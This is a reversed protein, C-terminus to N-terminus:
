RSVSREGAQALLSEFGEENIMENDEHYKLVAGATATALDPTMKQAGLACLAKAWDITEAVGPPKSLNRTRLVEVVEAVQQALAPSVEPARLRVIAIEREVNPHDIWHYLCRRKLADHLDRTRNSTLVVIPPVKAKLTGIEPITVSSDSLIELLFAEFEDDARDIEDILLVPPVANAHDIAQLLPRRILFKESYLDDVDLHDTGNEIIRAQLIQRAYDWEYLAQDATIGEYCALRILKGGTWQSIVNAVETKGVGSEGELLLPRNLTIALFIVTALGQDALYGYKELAASVESVSRPLVPSNTM